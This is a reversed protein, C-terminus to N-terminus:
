QLEEVRVEFTRDIRGFAVRGGFSRPLITPTHLTVQLRVTDAGGSWHLVARDGAAGMLSRFRAEGRMRAAAVSGPDAHDVEKSAVLRAADFGAATVTTTAYLNVSLQVAFLLLVLFVIVGALTGVLGTGREERRNCGADRTAVHATM